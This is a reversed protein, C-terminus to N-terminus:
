LGGAPRFTVQVRDNVAPIATGRFQIARRDRIYVWGNHEDQPVVKGNVTVVISSLDPEVPLSYETIVEILAASLQAVVKSFSDQCIDFWKGGSYQALELYRRGVEKYSGFTTCGKSEPLMGIYHLVWGKNFGPVAPKVQDLFDRYYGLSRPSYDDEDSLVVIYLLAEPRLFTKHNQIARTLSELGAEVDSGLEGLLFGQLFQKEWDQIQPSLTLLFRGGKGGSRLDTSVFGIRFDLRTSKLIQAMIHAQQSLKEQHKQMTYSDDIVFVLDVQRNYVGQILGEWQQQPLGFESAACGALFLTIGHKLFSM